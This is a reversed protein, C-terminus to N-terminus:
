KACFGRITKYWFQKQPPGVIQLSTPRPASPLLAPASAVFNDFNGAAKHVKARMALICNNERICDQWSGDAFELIGLDPKTNPRGLNGVGLALLLAPSSSQPSHEHVPRNGHRTM